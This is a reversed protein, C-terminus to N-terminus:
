VLSVRVDELELARVFGSVKVAGLRMKQSGSLGLRSARIWGYTACNSSAKSAEDLVRLGFAQLFAEFSLGQM